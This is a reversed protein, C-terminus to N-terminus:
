NKVCRIARGEEKPQYSWGLIEDNYNTHFAAATTSANSTASWFWAMEGIFMVQGGGGIQGAPLASFDIVNSADTNPSNWLPSTSKLRGGAKGRGGLIVSLMEWDDNTPVRWGTPCIKGSAAANYNYLAGYTDGGQVSYNVWAFQSNQNQSYWNWIDNNIANPIPTGDNFHTVKLNQAMWEVEGMDLFTHGVKVTKYVNGDFDTVTGTGKLYTLESEKDCRSYTLVVIIGITGLLLNSWYHKEMKMNKLKVEVLYINRIFRLSNIILGIYLIISCM